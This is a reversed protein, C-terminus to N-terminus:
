CRNLFVNDLRSMLFSLSVGTCCIAMVAATLANSLIASWFLGWGLALLVIM